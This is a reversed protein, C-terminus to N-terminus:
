GKLIKESESMHRIEKTKIIDLLIGAAVGEKKLLEIESLPLFWHWTLGSKRDKVDVSLEKGKAELQKLELNPALNEEIFSRLNEWNKQFDEIM